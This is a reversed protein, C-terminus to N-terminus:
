GEEGPNVVRQGERVLALRVGHDQLADDSGQLLLQAAKTPLVALVGPVAALRHDPVKSLLSDQSPAGSPVTPSWLRLGQVIPPALTIKRKGSYIKLRYARKISPVTNIWAAGVRHM